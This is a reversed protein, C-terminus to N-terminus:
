RWMKTSPSFGRMHDTIKGIAEDEDRRDERKGQPDVQVILDINKVRHAAFGQEGAVDLRAKPEVQLAAQLDQEFGVDGGVLLDIRLGHFHRAIDDLM